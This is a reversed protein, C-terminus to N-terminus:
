SRKNLLTASLSSIRTIQFRHARAQKYKIKIQEWTYMSYVLLLSINLLSGGIFQAYVATSMLITIFQSREFSFNFDLYYTVRFWCPNFLLNGVVAVVLVEMTQGLIEMGYGFILILSFVKHTRVKKEM